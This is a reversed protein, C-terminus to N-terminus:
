RYEGCYSPANRGLLGCGRKIEDIILQCSNQANCPPNTAPSVAMCEEVLRSSRDAGVATLCTPKGTPSQTVETRPYHGTTATPATAGFASSVQQLESQIKQWATTVQSSLQLSNVLGDIQQATGSVLQIDSDGKKTRKFNKWMTDTQKEFQTALNKADKERSTRRISSKGIASNFKPKFSKADDKLNKMLNELDKDNIRTQGSTLSSQLALVLSL